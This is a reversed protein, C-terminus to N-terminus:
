LDIRQLLNELRNTNTRLRDANNMISYSIGSPMEQTPKPISIDNSDPALIRELKMGLRDLTNSYYDAQLALEELAADIGSQQTPMAAMSKEYGESINSM